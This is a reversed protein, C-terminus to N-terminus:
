WATSRTATMYAPCIMSSAALRSRKSRGRWGYVIPSILDTGLRSRCRGSTGIGPVGGAVDQWKTGGLYLPSAQAVEAVKAAEALRARPFQWSESQFIYKESALLLDFRMHDYILMGGQPVAIFFGLEVFILLIAVFVGGIALATRGKQHTLIRWAIQLPM